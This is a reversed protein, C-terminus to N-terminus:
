GGTAAMTAMGAFWNIAFRTVFFLLLSVVFVIVAYSLAHDESVRMLRPLGVRLPFYGYLACIGGFIAMPPFLGFLGTVWGITSSYVALKLASIWNKEGGMDPAMANILKAVIFVSALSVVYTTVATLASIWLPFHDHGAFVGFNFIRRGAFDCVVPVAALIAAYGAMLGGTTAPEGDIIAWEATPALFIGRVRAFINM